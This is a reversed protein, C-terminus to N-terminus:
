KLADTAPKGVPASAPPLARELAELWIKAKSGIYSQPQSPLLRGKAEWEAITM